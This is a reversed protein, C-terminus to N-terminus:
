SAGGSKLGCLMWFEDLLTFIALKPISLSSMLALQITSEIIAPIKKLKDEGNL